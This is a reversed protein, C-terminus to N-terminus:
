HLIILLRVFGICSTILIGYKIINSKDILKQVVERLPTHTVIMMAIFIVLSINCIVMLIESLVPVYMVANGGEVM